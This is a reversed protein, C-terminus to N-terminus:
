PSPLFPSVPLRLLQLAIVPLSGYRWPDLYMTSCGAVVAAGRLGPAQGMWLTVDRPDDLSQIRLLEALMMMMSMRASEMRLVVELIIAVLHVSYLILDKKKKPEPLSGADSPWAIQEM